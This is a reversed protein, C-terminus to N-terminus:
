WRCYDNAEGSPDITCEYFRVQLLKLGNNDYRWFYEEFDDAFLSHRTGDLDYIFLLYKTVDEFTSKGTDRVLKMTISSCYTEGADVYCTTTFSSGGPTGLARAYVSYSVETENTGCQIEGEDLIPEPLCFEARGDTGNRDLVVFDKACENEPDDSNYLMIKTRGYDKVFLSHGQTNTMDATKGRPVSIINLTFHKGSPAGNGNFGEEGSPKDALVVGGLSSLMVVALVIALFKKM